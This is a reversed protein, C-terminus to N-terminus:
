HPWNQQLYAKVECDDKSTNTLQADVGIKEIRGLTQSEVNDLDLHLICTTVLALSSISGEM